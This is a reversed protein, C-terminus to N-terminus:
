PKVAGVCGAVLPDLALGYNTDAARRAVKERFDPIDPLM